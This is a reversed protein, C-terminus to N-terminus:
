SRVYFRSRLWLGVLPQCEFLMLIRGYREDPDIENHGLAYSHTHAYKSISPSAPALILYTEWIGLIPAQGRYDSETQNWLNGSEWFWIQGRYGSDFFSGSDFAWARFWCLGRYDSDTHNGSDDSDCNSGLNGSDSSFGSEIVINDSVPLIWVGITLILIGIDGYPSWASGSDLPGGRPRWIRREPISSPFFLRWIRGCDWFWVAGLILIEWITLILHQGRNDSDGEGSDGLIVILSGTLPHTPWYAIWSNM